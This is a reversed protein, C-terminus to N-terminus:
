ACSRCQVGVQFPFYLMEFKLLMGDALCVVLSNDTVICVHTESVADKVLQVCLPQLM